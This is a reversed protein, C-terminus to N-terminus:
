GKVKESGVVLKGMILSNIRRGSRFLTRWERGVVHYNYTYGRDFLDHRINQHFTNFEVIYNMIIICRKGEPEVDEYLSTFRQYNRDLM